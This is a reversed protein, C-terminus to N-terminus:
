TCYCASIKLTRDSSNPCSYVNTHTVVVTVICSWDLAWWLEGKWDHEGGGWARCFQEDSKQQQLKLLFKWAGVIMCYTTKWTQSRESSLAKNKNNLLIGGFKSEGNVLHHVYNTWTSNSHTLMWTCTKQSRTKIERPYVSLLPIALNHRVKVDLKIHFPSITKWLPQVMRCEGWCFSLEWCEMGEGFRPTILLRRLLASWITKIPIINFRYILKLM